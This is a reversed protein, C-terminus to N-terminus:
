PAWNNRALTHRRKVAVAPGGAYCLELHLWLKGLFCHAGSPVQHGIGLKPGLLHSPECLHAISPDAAASHHPVGFLCSSYGPCTLRGSRRSHHRCHSSPSSDGSASVTPLLPPIGKTWGCPRPPGPCPKNSEKSQVTRM